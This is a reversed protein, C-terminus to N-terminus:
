ICWKKEFKAKNEYTSVRVLGDLPKSLRISLRHSIKGSGGRHTVWVFFLGSKRLFHKRDQKTLPCNLKTAESLCRSALRIYKGLLANLRAKLTGKWAFQWSFSSWNFYKRVDLKDRPISDLQFHLSKDVVVIFYLTIQSVGYLGDKLIKM